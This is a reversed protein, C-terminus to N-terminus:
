SRFVAKRGLGIIALLGTAVLAISGPEPTALGSGAGSSISGTYTGNQFTLDSFFFYSIFHPFGGANSIGLMSLVAPNVTVNGFQDLIAGGAGSPPQFLCFSDSPQPICPSFSGQFIIGTFSGITGTLTIDGGMGFNFGGNFAAPGIEPGTRVNLCGGGDCTGIVDLFTTIPFGAISAGLQMVPVNSVVAINGIGPTFTFTGGPPTPGFGLAPFTAGDAWASTAAFCILTLLALPVGPWVHRMSGGLLLYQISGGEDAKM